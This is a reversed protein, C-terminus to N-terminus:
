RTKKRKRASRNIQKRKKKKREKRKTRREKREKREEERENKQRGKKIPASSFKANTSLNSHATDLYKGLRNLMEFLFFTSM